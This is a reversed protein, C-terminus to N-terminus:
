FQRALIVGRYIFEINDRHIRRIFIEDNLMDGEGLTRGNILVVPPRNEIIATGGIQLKVQEFELVTRAQYALERLSMVIPKRLPDTEAFALRSEVTGYAELMLEYERADLHSIMADLVERLMESTPGLGGEASTLDTRLTAIRDLVELQLRRQSPVYRIGGEAEVRRIDTELSALKEELQARLTIEEIVNQAVQVQDWVALVATTRDVLDQVTAMQEQVTLSSEGDGGVPARPDVWPDRRGRDGRYGFNSVTLAQKRRNIDGMLLDRKREYGEISVPAADRKSSYVFTEVDVQVRHVAKGLKELDGRSAATLKLSPVRMFRSHTELLDLFSLLEFADAELTLTYAVREFDSSGATSYDPKKKLQRISVKAQESFAQFTRVLNNVDQEDPLISKIVQSLERLTIVERELKPTGEILTQAAGIQTELSAIEGRTTEIIGKQRYILAGFGIGALLGVAITTTLVKKENM